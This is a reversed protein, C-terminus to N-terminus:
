SSKRRGPYNKFTTLAAMVSCFLCLTSLLLSAGLHETKGLFSSHVSSSLIWLQIFIAGLGLVIGLIEKTERESENRDKFKM